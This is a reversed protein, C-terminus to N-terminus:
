VFVIVSGWGQPPVRRLRHAPVHEGLVEDGDVGLRTTTYNKHPTQHTM